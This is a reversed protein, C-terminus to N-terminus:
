CYFSRWLPHIRTNKSPTYPRYCCFVSLPHKWTKKALTNYIASFVWLPTCWNATYSKLMISHQLIGSSKMWITIVKPCMKAVYRQLLITWKPKYCAHLKFTPNVKWGSLTGVQTCKSWGAFPLCQRLICLHLINQLFTCVDLYQFFQATNLSDDMSRLSPATCILCPKVRCGRITWPKITGWFMGLSMWGLSSLLIEWLLFTTISWLYEVAGFFLYQPFFLSYM